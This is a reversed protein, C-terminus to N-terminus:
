AAQMRKWMRHSFLAIAVFGIVVAAIIGRNIERGHSFAAVVQDGLVTTGITGPLHALTVGLLLDLLPIRLAGAVIMEVSFPAAPVMGLAAIALFGKKGLMKSLREIRPGAIRSVTKKKVQRGAWYLLFASTVIGSMAVAFGKWPGFAIASALTLLPRPFMILSAPTYLLAILIPAWWKSSITEIADVTNEVTVIDHLSTYRWALSMGVAATLLVAGIIILKKGHRADM